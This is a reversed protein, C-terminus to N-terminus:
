FKKILVSLSLPLSFLLALTVLPDSAAHPDVHYHFHNVINVAIASHPRRAYAM